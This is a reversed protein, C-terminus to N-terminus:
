RGVLPAVKGVGVVVWYALERKVSGKVAGIGADDGGDDGDWELRVFVPIELVDEDEQLGRAEESSSSSRIEACVVEVVVTTWNRGKDWVKGAEAVKNSETSTSAETKLRSLSKSSRDRADSSSGLAEDWVDVNAGIEFQPCLITVRHSHLGPTHAPTALTVRLTDFMPNKLTLLFQSPRLPQLANLEAAAAAQQPQSLLKLSITPIYNIAVLKIRFRTSQIKAEPKVLIHRCTRCRKNRKTRLLTPTPLVDDVFRQPRPYQAQQAISLTSSFGQIRLKQIADRDSNPDMVRLGESPDASERMPQTKTATKKSFSGLGTYLSMIRALSSPSNYNIEGAPTLLPNATASASLQSAYFSKLSKFASNPNSDPNPNLEEPSEESRSPSKPMSEGNRLKSIQSSINSSKDFKIGIDLSTWNCYGCALIWQGPLFDKTETQLSNVSM